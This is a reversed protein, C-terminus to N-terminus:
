DGHGLEKQIAVYIAASVDNRHDWAGDMVEFAFVLEGDKEAKRAIFKRGLVKANDGPADQFRERGKYEEIM